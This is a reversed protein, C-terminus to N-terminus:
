RLSITKIASSIPTFTAHVHKYGSRLPPTNRNRFSHQIYTAKRVVAVLLRTNILLLVKSYSDCYQYQKWCWLDTYKPWRNIFASYGTAMYYIVALQIRLRPMSMICYRTHFVFARFYWRDFSPLFAIHTVIHCEHRSRLVSLSNRAIFNDHQTSNRIAISEM